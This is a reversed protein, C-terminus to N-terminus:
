EPSRGVDAGQEQALARGIATTVPSGSVAVALAIAVVTASGLSVGFQIVAAVCFLPAALTTVPALFHLRALPSRALLAGVGAYAVLLVALGAFVAEFVIPVVDTM